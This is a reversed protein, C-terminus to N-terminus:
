REDEYALGRTRNWDGPTLLLPPGDDPHVPCPDDETWGCRRGEHSWCSCRVHEGQSSLARDLPSM